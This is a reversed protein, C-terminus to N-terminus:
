RPNQPMGTLNIVEKTPILFTYRLDNPALPTEGITNIDRRLTVAFQPDKNLRRLDTWRLTRFILEKRREVLIQVLANNASSATRNVYPPEMRKIMLTNLDEMALLTNGARAYCEARILYIEDTALGMFLVPNVTGDYNGRFVILGNPVGWENGEGFFVSKRRDNSAYSDYLVPHIQAMNQSLTGYVTVAQFIVETNFRSFSPADPNSSVTTLTPSDSTANYDLLTSQLKLCEDAMKGANIYDEMSLYTRALAGYAAAKSPRSKVQVELPLLSLAETLDATIRDYVHKVTARASLESVDPTMRLPIGMDTDATAATYPKCFLQALHYYAFARFFLATGKIVKYNSEDPAIKELTSLVLNANYVVQYGRLWQTVHEGQSHWSYNRKDEPSDNVDQM